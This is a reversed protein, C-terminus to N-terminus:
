AWRISSSSQVWGFTPAATSTDSPQSPKSRSSSASTISADPRGTVVSTIWSRPPVRAVIVRPLTQISSTRVLAALVRLTGMFSDSRTTPVMQPPDSPVLPIVAFGTTPRTNSASTAAPPVATNSSVPSSIPQSCWMAVRGDGFREPPLDLGADRLGGLVVGGHAVAAKRRAVGLAPEGGELLLGEAGVRLRAASRDM